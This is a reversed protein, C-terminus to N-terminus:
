PAVWRKNGGGVPMGADIYCSTCLFHGNVPNFTGEEQRVYNAPTMDELEAMELYEDLQDPTKLCGVCIIQYFIDM